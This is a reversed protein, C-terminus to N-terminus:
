GALRPERPVVRPLQSLAKLLVADAHLECYDAVEKHRWELQQSHQSATVGVIDLYIRLSRLSAWRCTEAIRPVSSPGEALYEGTAYGARGSHATWGAQTIEMHAAGRRICTTFAGCDKVESISADLPTCERLARMLALCIESRILVSQPRGSKTGARVGLLILGAGLAAPCEEPLVLHRGHCSIMEGPRLGNLVQLMLGAAARPRGIMMLGYAVVRAWRPLLALTHNPKQIVSWGALAARSLPLEGRFTPLVKEVASICKQFQHKTPRAPVAGPHPDTGLRWETLLDDFEWPHAPSLEHYGLWALFV